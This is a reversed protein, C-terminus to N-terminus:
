KVTINKLNCSGQLYKSIPGHSQTSSLVFTMYKLQQSHGTDSHALTQHTQQHITGSPRPASQPHIARSCAALSSYSMISRKIGMTALKKKFFNKHGVQLFINKKNKFWSM